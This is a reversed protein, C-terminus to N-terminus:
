AGTRRVTAERTEDDWVLYCGGPGGDRARSASGPNLFARAGEPLTLRTEERRAPVPRWRGDREVFGGPVHTHGVFTLDRDAYPAAARAAPVSLLYAFPREPDPHGHVLALGPRAAEEEAPAAAVARAGGDAAAGGSPRDGGEASRREGAVALPTGDAGEAWRLPAGTLWARDEETLQEAHRELAEVVDPAAHPDDGELIARLMAEHNGRVLAVPDLGRLRAVVTAADPGYGVLDGLLLLRDWRGEADALVRDLASADAHVDSLLLHRM